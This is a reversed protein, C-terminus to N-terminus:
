KGIAKLLFPNAIQIISEVDLIETVQGQIVALFLVGPRTAAGKITLPSEVIDLIRKVVLGVSHELTLAVVVVQLKDEESEGLGEGILLPSSSREGKGSVGGERTPFPTPPNPSSQQPSSNAFFVAHLDVLPLIRDRYQVAYQNAIKEVASLPFEELRFALSMPIGMLAGQYGHFLLVMQKEDEPAQVETPTHLPPSRWGSLEALGTPDIILAVKGDGLITAGAFTTLDKLQKGLPKVVIDQTDEIRDVVLGFQYDDANIVVINLTEEDAIAEQIQLERNLYVLPLIKGRLRYVPVDYLMEISKFAQEAELRVLEQLSTQPIAFSDGGSVIILAPIIALTLPIKIKFTTGQGLYSYVDVTGDIKEINSRVVDMGVGRGSLHTVQEATSLGPLFILDVAEADTMSGAAAATILELQQAKHKIQEPDIGSGDDSIEIFVIGSQHFARLCIKGVVPKGHEIRVGPTEIGHDICNRVLHTLPDKIAEIISKDLETQSGSMELQVQKDCAIALDRVVRPFKQWITSIPQMRTKMVGSHLESTILNLQHITANFATDEISDAFQLLSNRALVLEGVLNIMQDLLDVNVRISSSPSTAQPLLYSALSLSSTLPKEEGAEGAIKHGRTGKDGEGRTEEIPQLQNLIAIANTSDLEGENGSTEINNLLQRIVDVSQLLASIISSNLEVKGERLSGLLNESAHAVSELKPFPLFGCNGKLSHIERYIRGLSERATSTKELEVIEREIQNLNEYSEVLFAKLDEEDIDGLAM